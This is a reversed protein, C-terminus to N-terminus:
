ENIVRRSDRLNQEHEKIDIPAYRHILYEVSSTITGRMTMEKHKKLLDITEKSVKIVKVKSSQSSTPTSPKSIKQQNNNQKLNQKPNQKPM